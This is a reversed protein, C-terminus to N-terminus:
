GFRHEGHSIADMLFTQNRRNKVLGVGIAVGVGMYNKKPEM